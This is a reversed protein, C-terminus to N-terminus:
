LREGDGFVQELTDKFKEEIYPFMSMCLKVYTETAYITKHGLYASLVPLAVYMDMGSDSMKKFSYVAFTHRWDHIRPGEGGGIYPIDAAKLILRHHEYVTDYCLISGNRSSFIYDDCDKMYFCKDAYRRLLGVLGDDLVVYREHKNKTEVLRIIGAELDVDKKRIKITEDIRTGCCYLLRFLVPYQLSCSKNQRSRFSNFLDVAHFYREIEQVTYIHPKYQTAKRTINRPIYVDIGRNKLFILFHKTVNIRSYHTTSAEGDRKKYWENALHASLVPTDLKQAVCFKDFLRLKHIFSREQYGANLKAEIYVNLEQAFISVFARGM